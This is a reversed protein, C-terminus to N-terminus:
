RGSRPVSFSVRSPERAAFDVGTAQQYLPSGYPPVRFQGGRAPLVFIAANSREYLRSGYPPVIFMADPRPVPVRHDVLFGFSLHAQLTADGHQIFRYRDANIATANIEAANIGGNM